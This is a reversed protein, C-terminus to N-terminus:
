KMWGAFAQGGFHVRPDAGPSPLVIPKALPEPAPLPHVTRKARMIIAARHDGTQARHMELTERAATLDGAYIARSIDRLFDDNRNSM